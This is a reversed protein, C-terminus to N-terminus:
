PARPAGAQEPVTASLPATRTQSPPAHTVGERRLPRSLTAHTGALPPAGRGLARAAAPRARHARLPAECAGGVRRGMRVRRSGGRRPRAAPPLPEGDRRTARRDARAPTRPPRVRARTARASAPSACARHFA